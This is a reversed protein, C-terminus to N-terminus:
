SLIERETVESTGILSINPSSALRVSIEIQLKKCLQFVMKYLVTFPTPNEISLELQFSEIGRRTQITSAM